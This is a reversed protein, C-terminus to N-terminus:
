HPQMLALSCRATEHLCFRAAALLVSFDVANAFRLINCIHNVKQHAFFGLPDCALRDTHMASSDLIFFSGLTM